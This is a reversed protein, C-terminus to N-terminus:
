NCHEKKRDEQGRKRDEMFGKLKFKFGYTELLCHFSVSDNYSQPGLLLILELFLDGGPCRLQDRHSFDLHAPQTSLTSMKRPTKTNKM